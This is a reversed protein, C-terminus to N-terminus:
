GESPLAYVEFEKLRNGKGTDRGEGVYVIAIRDGIEVGDLLAKLLKPTSFVVIGNETAVTTKFGNRFPETGKYIGVVEQGPEAWELWDGGGEIKRAGPFRSSYDVKAKSPKPM